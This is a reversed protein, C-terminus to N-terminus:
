IYSSIMTVQLWSLFPLYSLVFLVNSYVYYISNYYWVITVVFYAYIFLNDNLYTFYLGICDGIMTVQM